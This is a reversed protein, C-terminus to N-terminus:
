LVITVSFSLKEEYAYCLKAFSLTIELNFIQMPLFQRGQDELLNGSKGSQTSVRGKSAPLFELIM